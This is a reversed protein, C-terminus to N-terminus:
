SEKFDCSNGTTEGLAILGMQRESDRSDGLSDGYDIQTQQTNILRETQHTEM